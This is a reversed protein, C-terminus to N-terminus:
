HQEASRLFCVGLLKDMLYSYVVGSESLHSMRLLLQLLMRKQVQWHKATVTEHDYFLLGMALTMLTALSHLIQVKTLPRVCLELHMRRHYVSLLRLWTPLHLSMNDFVKGLTELQVSLLTSLYIPGQHLANPKQASTYSPIFAHDVFIFAIWGGNIIYSSTNKSLSGYFRHADKLQVGTIRQQIAVRIGYVLKCFNRWYKKPLVARFLGPGLGFIYLFWETAKYGSSIKEAPNRPPRHFSAPFHKSALAVLKGHETWTNDTLTAFDWTSKDDSTDCKMTGRWISSLLDGINMFLHMLDLSFCLPVPLTLNPLLGSLISPKIIGTAKQNREYENQDRSSILKALNIQYSRCTEESSTSQANRFNFDISQAALLGNPALHVPYYHGTNPKHRGTMQCAIRCGKAGHHGVLGDLETLGVADATGLLLAIRSTVVCQKLADWVCLGANNNERQLASLHHLSRFTFSDACKLKNPGPVIM